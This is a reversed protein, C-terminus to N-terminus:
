EVVAGAEIWDHVCQVTEIPLLGDLPMEIFTGGSVVQWLYSGDPDGPVIWPTAHASESRLEAHLDIGQQAPHCRDCQETVMTDVGTFTGPYTVPDTGSESTGADAGDGSCASVLVFALFSLRM